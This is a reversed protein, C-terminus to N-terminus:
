SFKKYKEPITLLLKVKIHNFKKLINFGAKFKSKLIM